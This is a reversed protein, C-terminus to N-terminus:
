KVKGERCRIEGRLLCHPGRTPQHQAQSPGGVVRLLVTQESSPSPGNGLEGLGSLGRHVTNPPVSSSQSGQCTHISGTHWTGQTCFYPSVEQWLSGSFGAFYFYGTSPLPHWMPHHGRPQRLDAECLDRGTAHPPSGWCVATTRNWHPSLILARPLTSNRLIDVCVWPIGLVSAIFTIWLLIFLAKSLICFASVM